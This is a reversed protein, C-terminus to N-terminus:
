EPAGLVPVGLIERASDALATNTAVVSSGVASPHGAWDTFVGGAEEIVPVLATVDWVAMMPDVMVEARGTAVLLYGYCDGWTRAIAAREALNRWGQRRAEREAADRPFREDTTLVTAQALQAVDSVVCRVGNWWCGQGRAAVVTEGPGAAPCAIGGAIVTDGEVVGVLTGWLPVGRVFTKTGDIPDVIWQRRSDRRVRGFEEGVIGDTPFRREIWDRAAREAAHDAATVPSGDAKTEVALRTRFHRLAIESVTRTLDAVADLLTAPSAPTIM